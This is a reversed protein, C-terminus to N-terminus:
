QREGCPSRPNFYCIFALKRSRQLTAGWVPLTSQFAKEKAMANVPNPREGCPSRPNFDDSSSRRAASRRREGCPSRPNFYRDICRLRDPRRREGCPSRPKFYPFQPRSYSATDTAGWVPLTSQFVPIICVLRTGAIIDSGVRPAHISIAVLHNYGTLLVTAGWVPLTSQFGDRYKGICLVFTDSGVRPAHISISASLRERLALYDSGVRPAHISILASKNLDDWM